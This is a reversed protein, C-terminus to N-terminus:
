EEINNAKVWFVLLAAATVANIPIWLTKTLSIPLLPNYLVLFGTFIWLFNVDFITVSPMNACRFILYSFLFLSGVRLLMYYDYPMPFIAAVFVLAAVILWKNTYRASGETM